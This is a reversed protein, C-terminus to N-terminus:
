VEHLYFDGKDRYMYLHVFVLGVHMHCKTYKVAHRSLNSLQQTHKLTLTFIKPYNITPLVHVRIQIYMYM